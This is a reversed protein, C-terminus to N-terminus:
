QLKLIHGFIVGNHFKIFSYSVVYILFILMAFKPFCKVFMLANSFRNTKFLISKIFMAMQRFYLNMLARVLMVNGHLKKDVIQNGWSKPGIVLLFGCM